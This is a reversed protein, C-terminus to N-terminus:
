FPPSLLAEWQRIVVHGIDVLMPILFLAFMIGVVIVVLVFWRPPGDDPLEKGCHPCREPKDEPVIIPTIM